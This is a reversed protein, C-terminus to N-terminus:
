SIRASIGEGFDGVTLLAPRLNLSLLEGLVSCFLLWRGCVCKGLRGIGRGGDLSEFLALRDGPHLKCCAELLGRGLGGDPCFM